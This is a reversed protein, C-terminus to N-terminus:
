QTSRSWRTIAVSFTRFLFTFCRVQLTLPRDDVYVRKTLIDVGVTAKYQQSFMNNVFQQMLSSKGVSFTELLGDANEYDDDDIWPRLDWPNPAEVGFIHLQPLLINQGWLIDCEEV